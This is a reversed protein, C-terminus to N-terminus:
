IAPQQILSDFLTQEGGNVPTAALDKIAAAGDRLAPAQAAMQEAQQAQARQDRLADRDEDSRLGLAPAGARDWYDRVLADSDINDGAGSGPLIKEMMGVFNLGRETQEMGIMRQAQALISVFDIEIPMDSLEEPPEPFMGNRACMDFVRDIAVGLKENNVREIVPGLQTLKEEERKAIEMITRDSSGEMSSIMMFLRAYTADDIIDHLSMQDRAILEVARVDVEFVPKVQAADVSSAHTVSGPQYKIKLGAPAILPPKVVMDTAEGKRKAQLQLSRIDTLADHGPGFGYVDSAAVEWRPAWFPQAWFGKEELMPGSDGAAEWKASSWPKGADDLRGPIYEENAHIAHYIPVETEYKSADWLNRVSQSVKSWDLDYNSGGQVKVFSRVMQRVTLMQQRFLRDPELKENLGIWYEGFTQPYCVPYVMGTEHDLAESMICADTGFLGVEAYGIKAASYFNSASLVQQVIREAEALWVSVPHYKMLDKDRLAFKFWPRNPSSMGSYMGGTLIRFSRVAKGDYLRNARRGRSNSRTSMAAVYRSRNPQALSAIEYIEQEFPKRVDVMGSLQKQLCERRSHYDRPDASSGPARKVSLKERGAM